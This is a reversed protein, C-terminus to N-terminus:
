YAIEKTNIISPCPINADKEDISFFFVVVFNVLFRFKSEIESIM